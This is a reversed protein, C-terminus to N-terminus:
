KGAARGSYASKPIMGASCASSNTSSDRFFHVSPAMPNDGMTMPGEGASRVSAPILFVSFGRKCAARGCTQTYLPPRHVLERQDLSSSCAARLIRLTDGQQLRVAKPRSEECDVCIHVTGHRLNVLCEQAQLSEPPIEGAPPPAEEEDSGQVTEEDSSESGM